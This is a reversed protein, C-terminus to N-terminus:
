STTFCKKIYIMTLSVSLLVDRYLVLKTKVSMAANPELSPGTGNFFAAILCSVSDTGDGAM